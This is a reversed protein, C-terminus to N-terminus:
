IRLSPSALKVRMRGARNSMDQADKPDVGDLGAAIRLEKDSLPADFIDRAQGVYYAHGLEPLGSVGLFDLLDCGILDRGHPNAWPIMAQDTWIVEGFQNVQKDRTQILYLHAGPRARIGWLNQIVADGEMVVTMQMAGTRRPMQTPGYQVAPPILISGLHNFTKYIGEPCLYRMLSFGDSRALLTSKQSFLPSWQSSPLDLFNVLARRNEADGLQGVDVAPLAVGRLEDRIPSILTSAKYNARHLLNNLCFLNLASTTISPKAQARSVNVSFVQQGPQMTLHYELKPWAPVPMGTTIFWDDGSHTTSGVGSITPIRNFETDFEPGDGLTNPGNIGPVQWFRGIRGPAANIDDEFTLAM